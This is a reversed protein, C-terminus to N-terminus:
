EMLLIKLGLCAAASTKIQECGNAHLFFIPSGKQMRLKIEATLDPTMSLRSRVVLLQVRSACSDDEIADCNAEVPSFNLGKM